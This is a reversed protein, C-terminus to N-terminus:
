FDSIISPSLNIILSPRWFERHWVYSKNRSKGIEMELAGVICLLSAPKNETILTGNTTNEM